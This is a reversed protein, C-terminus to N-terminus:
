SSSRTATSRAPCRATTTRASATAGPRPVARRGARVRVRRRRHPLGPELPQRDHRAERARAARAHRPAREGRLRHPRPPDPRGACGAVPPVPPTPDTPTRTLGRGGHHDHHGARHGRARAPQNGTESSPEEHEAPVDDEAPAEGEVPGEHEIDEAHHPTSRASARPRGVIVGATVVGAAALVLVGAVVNGSLKPRTALLTGICVIIVGIVTGATVAGLKSTALFVRSLAAVTGGAILVGALPVEYPGLLRDRVLQNTAPDGTARDSWALVMWEVLVALLVIFGAIFLVNSIVLGLVVLSVGFAGAIPWYALHAPPVAAPPRTPAPWSPWRAPDADRVAVAVLGLFLALAGLSSSCRTASTTASARRQLGATVPGLGTGGTAWGYAAALVLRSSGSASSGSPDPPSCRPLVAKRSTPPSSPSTSATGSRRRLRRDAVYWYLAAASMGEADRGTLQGGLAQFGMVAAFLMGVVVMVLHAGTVAYLLGAIPGSTPPLALQQYLYVTSNIFAVGFLLTLGLALYAHPRDDNRLADVAWAMTVASMLLTVMGMNGPTLPLVVGEPLATRGAALEDARLGLYM